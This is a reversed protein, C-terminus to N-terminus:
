QKTRANVLGYKKDFSM